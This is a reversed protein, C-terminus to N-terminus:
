FIRFFTKKTLSYNSVSSNLATDTNIFNKINYKVALELLKVPFLVNTQILDFFSSGDRGYNTATHLITEIKNENFVDELDVLDIDYSKVRPLLSEIRKTNSFSRKLIVVEYSNELLANLLHSGLFGTAGTLLITM